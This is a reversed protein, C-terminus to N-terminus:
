LWGESTVCRFYAGVEDPPRQPMLALAQSFAHLPTGRDPSRRGAVLTGRHRCCGKHRLSRVANEVTDRLRLLISFRRPSPSPLYLPDRLGHLSPKSEAASPLVHSPVRLLRSRGMM